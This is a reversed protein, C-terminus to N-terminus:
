SAAVVAVAQSEGSYRGDTLSVTIRAFVKQALAYTFPLSDFDLAFNIVGGTTLADTGAFRYPGRFFSRGAGQPIGLFLLAQDTVLTGTPVAANLVLGDLVTVTFESIIPTEGINFDTPANQVVALGAQIRPTNSRIYMQTGSLKIADGLTNTRAVNKAYTIWSERQEETLVSGWQNALSGLASRQAQQLDTNPNTPITRGRFYNGGKNRSAVLGGTSGSAATM